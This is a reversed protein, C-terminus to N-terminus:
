RCSPQLGLQGLNFASDLLQEGRHLFTQDIKVIRSEGLPQLAVLVM